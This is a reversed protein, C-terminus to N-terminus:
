VEDKVGDKLGEYFARKQADENWRTKMVEQMFETAYTSAAKTQKLRGLREEARRVEDQEGFVKTIEKAFAEIGEYLRSTHPSLKKYDEELWEKQASSCWKAAKGELLSIAFVSEDEGDAFKEDHHSCYSRVALLWPRLKDQTGDFRPPVPLKVKNKTDVKGELEERKEEVDNVKDRTEKSELTLAQVQAILSTVAEEM